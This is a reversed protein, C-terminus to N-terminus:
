QSINTIDVTDSQKTAKILKVGMVIPTHAPKSNEMDFKQLIAETYFKQCLRLKAKRM